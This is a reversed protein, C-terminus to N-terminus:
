SKNFIEDSIMHVSYGLLSAAVLWQLDPTGFMKWVAFGIFASFVLMVSKRHMSRRGRHSLPLENILIYAAFFTIIGALIRTYMGSDVTLVVFFSVASPAVLTATKRVSSNRSDIDPFVSSVFFALLMSAYQPENPTLLLILASIALLIHRYFSPM